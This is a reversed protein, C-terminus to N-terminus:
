LRLIRPAESMGPPLWPAVPIPRTAAEAPDPRPGAVYVLWEDLPDDLLTGSSPRGRLSRRARHAAPLGALAPDPDDGAHARHLLWLTWAALPGNVAGPAAIWLNGERIGIVAWLLANAVVLWQTARSLARLAEPDRRSRWTARAQPLWLAFSITSAALGVAFDILHDVASMTGCLPVGRPSARLRATM